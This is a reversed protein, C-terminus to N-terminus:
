CWIIPARLLAKSRAAFNWETLFDTAPMSGFVRRHEIEYALRGSVMNMCDVLRESCFVRYASM